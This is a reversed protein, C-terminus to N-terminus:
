MPPPPPGGPGPGVDRPPRMMGNRSTVDYVEQILQTFGEVDETPLGMSTGVAGLLATREQERLDRMAMFSERMTAREEDTPPEGAEMKERMRAQLAEQQALAEMYRHHTEQQEETMLTLDISGLFDDRAVRAEEMRQQWQARQEQMQAYREPDNKKLEEMRERPSLRREEQPQPAAEVVEAKPKDAAASLEALQQRLTEREAKLAELESKVLTLASTNERVVTKTKVTATPVPAVTTRPATFFGAAFGAGM